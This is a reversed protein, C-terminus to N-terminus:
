FKPIEHAEIEEPEAGFLLNKGLIQIVATAAVSYPSNWLYHLVSIFYKTFNGECALLVYASCLHLEHQPRFTASIGFADHPPEEHSM